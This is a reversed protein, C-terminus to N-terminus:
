FQFPFNFCREREQEKRVEQRQEIEEEAEMKKLILDWLNSSCDTIGTDGRFRSWHEEFAIACISNPLSATSLELGM